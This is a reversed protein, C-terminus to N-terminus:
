AGKNNIHFYKEAKKDPPPTVSACACLVRDAGAFYLMKACEDLTAGTTFIDDCLLVTKGKILEPRATEYVGLVNGLRQSANLTRQKKNVYLKELIGCDCKIDLRKAIGEALLAASNFGRKKLDSKHMPVCTIVDICYGCFEEKVRLATSEVFFHTSATRNGFKFRRIGAKVAGYYYFPSVCSEFLYRTDSCRCLARGKGCKKCIPPVVAFVTPACQGCVAKETETLRGCMPCRPPFLMRLVFNFLRKMM